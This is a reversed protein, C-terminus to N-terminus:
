QAVLFTYTQCDAALAFATADHYRMFGADECSVPLGLTNYKLWRKANELEEPELGSDDGNILYPAWHSPATLEIARMATNGKPEYSVYPISGIDTPINLNFGQKM